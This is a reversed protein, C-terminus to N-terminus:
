SLVRNAADDTLSEGRDALSSLILRRNM